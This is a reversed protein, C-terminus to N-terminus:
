KDSRELQGKFMVVCRKDILQPRGINPISYNLGTFRITRRINVLRPAVYFWKQYSRATVHFRNKM